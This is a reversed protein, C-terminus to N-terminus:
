RSKRRQINRGALLVGGILILLPCSPEPIATFQISLVDSPTHIPGGGAGNSSLDFLKFQVTYNGEMTATFNRGHIHGFPDAGPNGAGLAADSLSWLGTPNPAQHGATFSFTPATAEHDWFAFEGGAPGQVSVIGVMIFSGPAPAGAVPGGNDVTTPLVTFSINGAYYGAYTGTTAPTMEKSYGTSPDFINGNSFILKDGQAGANLHRHDQASVPRLFLCITSLCILCLTKM